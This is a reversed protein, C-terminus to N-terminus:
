AVMGALAARFKAAAADVDAGIPVHAPTARLADRLKALAVDSASPAKISAVRALDNSPVDVISVEFLDAQEIWRKPNGRGPTSRKVSYGISLGDLVLGAQMLSLIRRGHDTNLALLRGEVWLGHADERMVEWKGVPLDDGSFPNGNSGHMLMMKPLRGRERWQRLSDTFAGRVIIDDHSDANGFVAGYGKFEGTASDVASAAFRVDIRDTM